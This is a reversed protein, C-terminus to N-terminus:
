SFKHQLSLPSNFTSELPLLSFRCDSTCVNHAQAVRIPTHLILLLMDYHLSALVWVFILLCQIMLILICLMQKGYCGTHADNYYMYWLQNHDPNVNYSPFVGCVDNDMTPPPWISGLLWGDVSVLRIGTCSLCVAKKYSLSVTQSKPMSCAASLIEIM